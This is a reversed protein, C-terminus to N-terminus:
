LYFISLGEERWAIDREEEGERGKQRRRKYARV